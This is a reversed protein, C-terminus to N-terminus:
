CETVEPSLSFACVSLCVDSSNGSFQRFNWAAWSSLEPGLRRSGLKVDGATGTVPFINRGIPLPPQAELFVCGWQPHFPSKNQTGYLLINCPPIVPIGTRIKSLGYGCSLFAFYQGHKPHEYGVYYFTYDERYEQSIMIAKKAMM